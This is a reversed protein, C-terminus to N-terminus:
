SVHGWMGLAQFALCGLGIDVGRVALGPDLGPDGLEAVGWPVM